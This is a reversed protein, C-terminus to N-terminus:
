LHPAPMVPVGAREHPFTAELRGDVVALAGSGLLQDLTARVTAIPDSALAAAALRLIPVGALHAVAEEPTPRPDSLLVWSAVVRRAAHGARREPRRRWDEYRAITAEVAAPVDSVVPGHGPIVRAPRLAALRRVSEITLDIVGDEFPLWAVDDAQLLDGTLATRTSPEWFAVHGPTQSPTAVVRLGGPLEDGDALPRDVPFADVEQDLIEADRVITESEAPHLAVPAALRERLAGAGGVHDAHGHTLAILEVPRSAVFREVRDIAAASGDGTDVLVTGVLALHAAPSGRELVDIM